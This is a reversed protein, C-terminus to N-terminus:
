SNFSCPKSMGREIAADFREKLAKRKDPGEVHLLSELLLEIEDHKPMWNSDEKCRRHFVHKDLKDWWFIATWYEQNWRGRGQQFTVRM